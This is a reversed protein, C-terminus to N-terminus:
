YLCIRKITKPLDNEVELVYWFSTKPKREVRYVYAIYEAYGRRNEVIPYFTYHTKEHLWNVAKQL